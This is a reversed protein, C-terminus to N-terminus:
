VLAIADGSLPAGGKKGYLEECGDVVAVSHARRNVMGILSKDQFASVPVKKMHKRLGLRLFGEGAGREDEGDNLSRVAADFSRAARGDNNEMQARKASVAFLFHADKLMGADRMPVFRSGRIATTLEHKKLDLRFGDRMEVHYGDGAANVSKFIDTPSQGFKMMAAKIASITVCNGDPGQRFGTWINDPKAGNRKSSLDPLPQAQPDPLPSVTLLPVAPQPLPTVRPQVTNAPEKGALVNQLQAFFQTFVELLKALMPANNTADGIGRRDNNSLPSVAVRDVKVKDASVTRPPVPCSDLHQYEASAPMRQNIPLCSM